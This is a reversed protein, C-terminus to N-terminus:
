TEVLLSLSPNKGELSVTGDCEHVKEVTFHIKDQISITQTGSTWNQLDPDFSLGAARLHDGSVIANFYNFVLVGLHSPRCENVVGQLECGIAPCFVLADCSADFHIHPLENLVWGKGEGQNLRVNEYGMLIGGLGESYKMLLGRISDEVAEECNHLAAPLLSASLDIKKKLFFSGSPNSKKVKKKKEPNKAKTQVSNQADNKESMEESELNTHSLTEDIKVRKRKKKEKSSHERKTM